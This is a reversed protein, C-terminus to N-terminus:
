IIMFAKRSGVSPRKKMDPCESLSSSIGYFIDEKMELINYIKLYEKFHGAFERIKRWSESLPTM